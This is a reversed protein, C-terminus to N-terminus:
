ALMLVGLSAEAKTARAVEAARASREAERKESEIAGRLDRDGRQYRHWLQAALARADTLSIGSGIPPRDRSGNPATYRYYYAAQTGVLKHM